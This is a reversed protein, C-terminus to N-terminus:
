TVTPLLYHDNTALGGGQFTPEVSSGERELRKKIRQRYMSNSMQYDNRSHKDLSLQVMEPGLNRTVAKSAWSHYERQAWSQKIGDLRKRVDEANM